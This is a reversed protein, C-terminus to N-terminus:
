YSAKQVAKRLQLDPAAAGERPAATTLHKADPPSAPVLTPARASGTSEALSAIDAALRYGTCAKARSPPTSENVKM